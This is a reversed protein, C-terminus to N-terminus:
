LTCIVISYYHGMTLPRTLGCVKPESHAHSTSAKTLTRRHCSSAGLRAREFGADSSGAGSMDEFAAGEEGQRCM